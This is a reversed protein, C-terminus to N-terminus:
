REATSPDTFIDLNEDFGRDLLPRNFQFDYFEDPDLEALLNGDWIKLIHDIADVSADAADGWGEFDAIVWPDRLPANDADVGMAYSRVAAPDCPCAMAYATIRSVPSPHRGVRSLPGPFSVLPVLCQTAAPFRAAGKGYQNGAM